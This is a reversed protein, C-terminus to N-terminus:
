VITAVISFSCKVNLEHVILSLPLRFEVLEFGLEYLAALLSTVIGFGKLLNPAIPLSESGISEVLAMGSAVTPNSIM